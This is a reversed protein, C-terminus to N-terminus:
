DTVTVTATMSPHETCFYPFTGATTFTFTFTQGQNLFGSDWVGSLSNPPMGSTTTHITADQQVWTVATGAKVTLDQLRFNLIDSTVPQPVPTPTFTPPVPTPTPTPTPTSTPPVPTATPAPTATSTPPVPTSTPVPTATSTLPEPTSMPVPTATPTPPVPTPTAASPVVVASGDETVTVTATMAPHITCFYPFTGAKDFTFSFTANQVLDGSDWIGTEDGPAGSTTTHAARDRNLWTVTTGVRVILNEHTFNVINAALSQGGTQLTSETSASPVAIVTPAAEAPGPTPSEPVNAPSPIKTAAPAPALTAIRQPSAQTPEPSPAPRAAPPAAEPAPESDAGCAISVAAVLVIALALYVKLEGRADLISM